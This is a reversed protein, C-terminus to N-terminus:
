VHLARRKEHNLQREKNEHTKAIKLLIAKAYEDAQSELEDRYTKNYRYMAMDITDSHLEAHGLEHAFVFLLRKGKLRHTDIFIADSYGDNIWMAKLKIMTGPVATCVMIDREEALTLLANFTKSYKKNPQLFIFEM